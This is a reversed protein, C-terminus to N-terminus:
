LGSWRGELPSRQRHANGGDGTTHDGFGTWLGHYQSPSGGFPYTGEPWM